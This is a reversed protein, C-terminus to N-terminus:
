AATPLEASREVADLDGAVGARAARGGLVYVYALFLLEAAAGLSIRAWTPLGSPPTVFAE